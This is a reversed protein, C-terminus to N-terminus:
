FRHSDRIYSQVHKFILSNVEYSGDKVGFLLLQLTIPLFRSLNNFLIVRKETYIPCNFFFHYTDEIAGCQCYPSQVINKSYLHENLSSCHMRLRAHLINSTREGDYFHQPIIKKDKSLNAKFASLSPATRVSEPLNNWLNITSPLFSRTFLQSKCQISRINNSNRLPYASREGVSSPILTCLYPPALSNYMKYFQTLKHKTRRNKLPELATENYLNQLSALRTGGSIIRAAEQQIKELEIEDQTNINDWVIDAYELIPRIFTTYISLLSKRDLTFKFTRMVNLRQWAKKKVSEIHDHWSCTDSFTLGLHKHSSVETIQCDNFFLPPHIPRNIKRSVVLSETKSPNFTVLWKDAWSHIKALDTNLHNAADVPNDVIIYLTTDDAFLRIPCHIDRVIDNIYILFLLPGLISGQPVGANIPLPDSQCGSIVVCQTREHLYDKLWSLLNGSIGSLRLKHILGEHWVRDFAKSIDCFVARVEKGEDLAKCFSHYVSVLQNVTSDKPIFGSQSPTIFEIARLHNFIYKHLIRELCKSLVSLLSIPRYNEVDQPDSKKHLACVIAEKWSRPVRGNSISFNFLNQLPGSIESAIQKLVQSNIQDPGSAKGTKM